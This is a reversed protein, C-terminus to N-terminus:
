QVTEEILTGNLEEEVADDRQEETIAIDLTGDLERQLAVGDPEEAM